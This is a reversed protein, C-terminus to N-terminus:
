AHAREIQRLRLRIGYRLARIRQKMHIPLFSPSRKITDLDDKLWNRLLSLQGDPSNDSVPSQLCRLVYHAEGALDTAKITAARVQAATLPKVNILM